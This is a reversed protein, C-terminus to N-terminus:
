ARRLNLPSQSQLQVREISAIPPRHMHRNLPVVAKAIQLLAKAVLLLLTAHLHHNVDGLQFIPGNRAIMITVRVPSTILPLKSKNTSPVIRLTIIAGLILVPLRIYKMQTQIITCTSSTSIVVAPYPRMRVNSNSNSLHGPTYRYTPQNINFRNRRARPFSFSRSAKLNVSVRKMMRKLITWIWWTTNVNINVNININVLFMVLIRHVSIM